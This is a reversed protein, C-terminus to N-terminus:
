TSKYQAIEEEGAQGLQEDDQSYGFRVLVLTIRASPSQYTFGGTAAQIGEWLDQTVSNKYKHKKLYISVGKLFREEGAYSALM